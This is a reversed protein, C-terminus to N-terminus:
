VNEYEKHIIKSNDRIIAPYKDRMRHIDGYHCIYFWIIRFSRIIEKSKYLQFCLFPFGHTWDKRGVFSMFGSYKQINELYARIKKNDWGSKTQSRKYVFYNYLKKELVLYNNCFYGIQYSFFMDNGIPQEEFRIHYTEIFLRKVMKNWPPNNRYKVYDISIKGKACQTIYNSIKDFIPEKKSEFYEYFNFYVVDYDTNVYADLCNLFGDVYYDDCDAFLLWKGKAYLLGTNRAGGAGYGKNTVLQASSYYGVVKLADEYSDSNDDVVIIELDDRQPISKLCRELLFPSNKHPIIISYTYM